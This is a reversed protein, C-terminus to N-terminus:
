VLGLLKGGYVLRSRDRVRLAERWKKSDPSFYHSRGHTLLDAAVKKPLMCSVAGQFSAWNLDDAGMSRRAETVVARSSATQAFAAVRAQVM